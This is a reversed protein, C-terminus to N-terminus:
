GDPQSAPIDDVYLRVGLIGFTSNAGFGRISVQEEQAYDQRNRALIGPVAQVGESLNVGLSGEYFEDASVNNISAPVNYPVESTRTATVTVTDLRRVPLDSTADAFCLAPAVM